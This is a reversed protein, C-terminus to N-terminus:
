RRGAFGLFFGREIGLLGVYRGFITATMRTVSKAM